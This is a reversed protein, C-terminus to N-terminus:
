TWEHREEHEDDSEQEPDGHRAIGVDHEIGVDHTRDEDIERLVHAFALVAHASLGPALGEIKESFLHLEEDIEHIEVGGGV